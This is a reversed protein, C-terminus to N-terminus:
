VDPCNKINYNLCSELTPLQDDNLSSKQTKDIEIITGVGENLSSWMFSDGGLTQIKSSTEPLKPTTHYEWSEAGDYEFRNM